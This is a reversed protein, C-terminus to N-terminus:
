VQTHILSCKLPCPKVFIGILKLWSLQALLIFMFKTSLNTDSVKLLICFFYLTHNHGESHKEDMKSPSWKANLVISFWADFSMIVIKYTGPRGIGQGWRFLQSYHLSLLFRASKCSKLFYWQSWSAQLCWPASVCHKWGTNMMGLWWVSHSGRETNMIGQQYLHKGTSLSGIIM